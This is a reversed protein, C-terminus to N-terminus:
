EYHTAALMINAFMSWNPTNTDVEEGQNMYYGELDHVFGTLGELYDELTRNEWEVKREKLYDNFAELFKLFDEKSKIEKAQRGLIVYSM